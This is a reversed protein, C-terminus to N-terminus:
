ASGGQNAARRPRPPMVVDAPPLPEGALWRATNAIAREILSAVNDITAGACHPTVITQELALLPSGLPPESAFADIAASFLHGRELADALAAEDVLGGRACNVLIAGPKMSAIRGADLLGRTDPMLPLHLSVIDAQALLVGLEVPRAHLALALEAPPPMPDYYLLDVGFGQLLKAVVRGIAGFGVLGVTKGRLHRNVGRCAEKDWRGARTDRDLVPLRRCAALMLMVTHEAVPVANGAGLRAVGVGRERCCNLDIRDVGAGLKQIFGLRPAAEILAAPVPTAMVFAADAPAFAEKQAADDPGAAIRLTWDRPLAASLIEIVEPALPDIVSITIGSM